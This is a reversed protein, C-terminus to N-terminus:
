GWRHDQWIPMASPMLWPRTAVRRTSCLAIRKRSCRYSELSPNCGANLSPVILANQPVLQSCGRFLFDYAPVLKHSIGRPLGESQRTASAHHFAHRELIRKVRLEETLRWLQNGVITSILRAFPSYKSVYRRKKRRVRPGLRGMGATNVDVPPYTTTSILSANRTVRGVAVGTLLLSHM